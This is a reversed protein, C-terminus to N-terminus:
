LSVYTGPCLSNKVHSLNPFTLAGYVRYEGTIFTGTKKMDNSQVPSKAHHHDNKSPISIYATNLYFVSRQPFTRLM